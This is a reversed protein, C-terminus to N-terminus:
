EDTVGAAAGGEAIAEAIDDLSLRAGNTRDKLFGHLERFSRKEREATLQARGDPLLDLHIRGGPQVGLHRLVDKRFTVQGRATVTLTTM